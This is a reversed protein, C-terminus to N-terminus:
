VKTKNKKLAELMKLMELIKVSSVSVTKQKGTKTDIGAPMKIAFKTKDARLRRRKADERQNSELQSAGLVIRRFDLAKEAQIILNKYHTIYDALEPDSMESITKTLTAFRPPTYVSGEAHVLLRGEHRDGHRDILPQEKLEADPENLCLHCYTPDLLSGCAECFPWLCTPCIKYPTSSPTEGLHGCPKAKREVPSTTHREAEAILSELSNIDSHTTSTPVIQQSTPPQTSPPTLPTEDPMSLEKYQM